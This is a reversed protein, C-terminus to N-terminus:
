HLKESKNNGIYKTGSGVTRTVSLDPVSLQSGHHPLVPVSPDQYRGVVVKLNGMALTEFIAHFKQNLLAQLICAKM